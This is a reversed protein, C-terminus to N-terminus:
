APGRLQCSLDPKDCGDTVQTRANAEARAGPDLVSCLSSSRSNDVSSDVVTCVGKPAELQSPYHEIETKRGVQGGFGGNVKGFAQTLGDAAINQSRVRKNRPVQPRIVTM